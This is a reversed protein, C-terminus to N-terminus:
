KSPSGPEPCLAGRRPSRLRNGREQRCDSRIGRQPRCCIGCSSTTAKCRVSELDSLKKVTEQCGSGRYNRDNVGPKRRIRRDQPAAQALFVLEMAVRVSAGRTTCDSSFPSEEIFRDSEAPTKVQRTVAINAKLVRASSSDKKEGMAPDFGPMVTAPTGLAPTMCECSEGVFATQAGLKAAQDQWGQTRGAGHSCHGGDCARVPRRLLRQLEERWRHYRRFERLSCTGEGQKPVM